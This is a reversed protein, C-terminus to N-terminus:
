INYYFNNKLGDEKDYIFLEATKPVGIYTMDQEWKSTIGASRLFRVIVGKFDQTRKFVHEQKHHIDGLFFERYKAKAFLMPEDIAMSLPLENLKKKEVDGHAFGFMSNGYTSYKRKMGCNQIVVNPNNEYLLELSEGLYFVNDMDHNGEIVPIIVKSVAAAKNICDIVARLGMKYAVKGSVFSYQPTGKKTSEHAISNRNFFDNGVPFIILESKQLKIENLMSDFVGTFKEINKDISSQQEMTEDVWSLKDIHADYINIIGCTKNTSTKLPSITPLKYDTLAEQIAELFDEKGGEVRRKFVINCSYNQVQIPLGKDSKMTTTWCKFQQKEVTWIDLEVNSEELAEELNTIKKTGKYCFSAGKSDETWDIVDESTKTLKASLSPKKKKASSKIKRYMTKHLSNFTLYQCLGREEVILEALKTTNLKPNEERYELIDSITLVNNNSM